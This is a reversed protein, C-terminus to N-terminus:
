SDAPRGLWVCEAHFMLCAESWDSEEQVMHLSRVFSVGCMGIKFGAPKGLWDCEDHVNPM